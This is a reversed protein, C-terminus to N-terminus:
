NVRSRLIKPPPPVYDKDKEDDGVDGEELLAAQRRKSASQRIERLAPCTLVHDNFAGETYAYDACGSCTYIIEDESSSLDSTM